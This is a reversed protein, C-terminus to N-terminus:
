NSPKKVNLKLNEIRNIKDLILKLENLEIFHLTKLTENNLNNFLEPNIVQTSIDTALENDILRNLTEESLAPDDSLKKSELFKGTNNVILTGQDTYNKNINNDIIPINNHNKKLNTYPEPSKVVKYIIFCCILMIGVLAFTNKDLEM